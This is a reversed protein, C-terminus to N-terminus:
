KQELCPISQGSFITRRKSLGLQIVQIWSHHLDQRISPLTEELLFVVIQNYLLINHWYLIPIPTREGKQKIYIKNWAMTTFNGIRLKVKAWGRGVGINRWWRASMKLVNGVTTRKNLKFVGALSASESHHCSTISRLCWSSYVHINPDHRHIKLCSEAIWNIWSRLDFVYFLVSCSWFMYWGNWSSVFVNNILQLYM